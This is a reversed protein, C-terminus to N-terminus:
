FHGWLHTVPTIVGRILHLQLKYSIVRSLVIKYSTLAWRVGQVYKGNNWDQDGQVLM